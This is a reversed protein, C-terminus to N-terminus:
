KKQIKGWIVNAVRECSRGDKYRHFLCLLEQRKEEWNEDIEPFSSIYSLLQNFDSVIPGPFYNEVPNFNFGRSDRYETLDSLAMLIPKNLLLYDIVVSSYDSILCDTGSLLEYLNVKNKKLDENEICIVNSLGKLHSINLKAVQWLKM